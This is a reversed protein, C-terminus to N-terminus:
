ILNVIQNTVNMVLENYELQDIIGLEFDKEIENEIKYLKKLKATFQINSMTAM